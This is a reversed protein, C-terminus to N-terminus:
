SRHSSFMGRLRHPRELPLSVQLTMAEGRWLADTLDPRTGIKKWQERIMDCVQTFQFIGVFTQIDVRLCGKGDTHLCYGGADRKRYTSPTCSTPHRRQTGARIAPKLSPTLQEKTALM